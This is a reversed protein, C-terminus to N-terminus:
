VAGIKMSLPICTIGNMTTQEGVASFGLRKYIDVAYPSSNVTIETLHPMLELCKEMTRAFLGKAIGRRHHSKRVFLLAIHNGDRVTISGALTEGDWCCITFFKGAETAKKLEEGQIFSRFTEIGESSYGPAVFESFVEWVLESLLQEEGAKLVDYALGKEPKKELYVLRLGGNVDEERFIRYGLKEYLALNKRSLHGTFLEYRVAGFHKEVARLLMKGIGKNRYQPHVILKGIHCTGAKQLARVSGVICGDEVVKLIISEKAEEELEEMTQALPPINFDNYIEAESIYALKQLALIQDLDSKVAIAVAIETETKPREAKDM